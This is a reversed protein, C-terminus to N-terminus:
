RTIEVDPLKNKRRARRFRWLNIRGVQANILSLKRLSRVHALPMIDSVQTGDLELELLHEISSLVSVDSVQTGALHLSWLSPHGALPRLDSVLTNELDLWYLRSLGVLPILDSVQTNNLSLRRLGSFGSLLSVDIKQIDDLELKALQSLGSYALFRQSGNLKILWNYFRVRHAFPIDSGERFEWIEGLENATIVKCLESNEPDKFLFQGCERVLNNHKEREVESPQNQQLASQLTIAGDYDDRRQVETWLAEAADIDGMDALHKLRAYSQPGNGWFRSVGNGVGGGSTMCNFGIHSFTSSLAGSAGGPMDVTSGLTQIAITTRIPNIM